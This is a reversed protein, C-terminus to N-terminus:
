PRGDHGREKFYMSEQLDLAWRKMLIQYRQMGQESLRAKYPEAFCDTESVDKRWSAITNQWRDREEPSLLEKFRM